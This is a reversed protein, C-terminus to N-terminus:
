KLMSQITAPGINQLITQVGDETVYGQNNLIVNKWGDNTNYYLRVQFRDNASGDNNASGEVDVRVKPALPTSSVGPLSYGSIYANVPDVTGTINTTKNPSALVAYKINTVPNTVAYKPFYAAFEIANMPVTQKTDGSTIVLNASGDYNKSITYGVDTKKLMESITSPVFDSKNYVDVAGLDSYEKLKQTILRQALDMDTKNEKSLVGEMTQYEPMRKALEASQWQLKQTYVNRVANTASSKIENTKDVLVRETPTLQEGRYKKVFAVAIPETSKGRHEALFAKTDFQAVGSSPAVGLGAIGMSPAATAQAPKYYKSYSSAVDYLQEASYLQRGEKTNIGGKTKFYQSLQDDFVKSGDNITKLLMGKQLLEVQYGRVKDLYERQANDTISKPNQNYKSLLEDLAKERPSKEIVKGNADIKSKGSLNPFLLAGYQSNIGKIQTEIGKMESDLGALTPAAVDTRIAGPLVIPINKLTEQAKTTKEWEFRQIALNHTSLWEAHDQRAKDYQFQLKRKEMDMQAYPNNLYEQQVSQYSIDKALNTLYKQTYLQYKYSDVDTISDIKNLEAQEEKKLDGNKLKNNLNTLTTEIQKKEVDSLGTDTKLKVSLNVVYDSLMKEKERYTNQIDSKFTEKNANRYHYNGTIMLQQKDNEDLSTYFNDLIKQAPKGKTKIRLMADDIQPTGGSNPDTSVSVKGSKDKKYYLTNGANDRKYPIDVSNDLEKVKDALDRLKKDVDRYEVFNGSFSNDLNTDNYWKSVQNGWWWENEPSSKGAKRAAEMDTSGKRIRQTSAIANQVFKDNTIQKSMGGVSNALQFNSFDGGALLTLKGHLQDLKSQLYKKEVPRYVDLGAIRDIEGQIKTVNQEYMQQKAMGVQVMADVPLQQVYPNFQPIIDTFSAM